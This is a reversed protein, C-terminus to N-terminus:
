DFYIGSGVLFCRFVCFVATVQTGTSVTKPPFLPLTTTTIPVEKKSTLSEDQPSLSIQSQERTIQRQRTRCRAASAEQLFM